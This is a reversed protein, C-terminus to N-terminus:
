SSSMRIPLADVLFAGPIMATGLASMADESASYFKDSESEINVGYAVSLTLSGTLFHVHKLFREPSESLRRLFVNV